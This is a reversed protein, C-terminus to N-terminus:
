RVEKCVYEMEHLFVPNRTNAYLSRTGIRLHNDRVCYVGGVEFEEVEEM